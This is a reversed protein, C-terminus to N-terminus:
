REISLQSVPCSECSLDQPLPTPQVASITRPVLTVGLRKADARIFAAAFRALSTYLGEGAVQALGQPFLEIWSGLHEGLFDRQAQVCVERHEAIETEVAFAEKLALVHMFELEVALHDPRERVAGGVQFGFAQYFGAIDAMEQSQRFEHPLGIETEYCLSGTLGFVRRHETQLNSLELNAPQLNTISAVLNQFGLEALIPNIAPLDEPWNERPYLFADALFRYVQARRIPIDITM